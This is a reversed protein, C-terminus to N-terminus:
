QNFIPKLVKCLFYGVPAVIVAKLLNFPAIAFLILTKLDVVVPTIQHAIDVFEKIDTGFAKAFTPILIYYNFLCATIIMLVTGIVTGFIFSKLTRNKKYFIGIPVVFAIGVLFNALEGVGATSTKFLHLINKILEIMIGAAPGMAITGILAPLDSLDMKLFFPFIPFSIEFMMLVLSVASLMGIKVLKSTDISKRRYVTNVNSM